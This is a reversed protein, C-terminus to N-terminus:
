LSGSVVKKYRIKGLIIFDKLFTLTTLYLEVLSPHLENTACRVATAAVRRTRIGALYQVRVHVYLLFFRSSSRLM